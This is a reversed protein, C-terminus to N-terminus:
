KEFVIGFESVISLKYKEVKGSDLILTLYQPTLDWKGKEEKMFYGNYYREVKLLADKNFTFVDSYGDNESNILLRFNNYSKTYRGLIYFKISDIDNTKLVNFQKINIITDNRYTYSVAEFKGLPKKKWVGQKQNNQYYGSLTFSDQFEQWFGHKLATCGLTVSSYPQNIDENKYRTITDQRGCDNSLFVKGQKQIRYWKISDYEVYWFTDKEIKVYECKIRESNRYHFRYLMNPKYMVGTPLMHVYGMTTDFDIFLAKEATFKIDQSFLFAKKFLIIFLIYTRM